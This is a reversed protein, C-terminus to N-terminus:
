LAIGAARLREVLPALETEYRRWLAVSTKYIPQRVQAASATAAASANEHFNLCADQWDLGLAAILRRTQTEQDGVMDEYSVEILRGGLLGRWHTMLGDYAIYYRALDDLSYSYPCGMRFLTKYIAYLTDMPHRTLHVIRANPLAKNILGIYLYNVPTKDIHIPRTAGYGRSSAMYAEGLAKPDIDRAAHILNTKGGGVGGALRTLCLAFDNIEGLSQVSDHSSIIRDILTTGSRPLGLVFIPTATADGPRSDNLYNADFVRRIETMAAVDTAVDYSLNARRRDAGRKLYVFSKQWEGLDELEKSLAYGLQVEGRERGLGNILVEMDRVHNREPTQRRLTSRNQWADFDFPDLAVVRDLLAESTVMDGVAILATALNYLGRTDDPSLECARRYVEVARANQAAHVLHEGVYQLSIPDNWSDAALQNLHTLAQAMAGGHMLTRIDSFRKQTGPHLAHVSM